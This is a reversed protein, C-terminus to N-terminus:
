LFLPIKLNTVRSKDGENSQAIEKLSTWSKRRRKSSTGVTKEGDEEKATKNSKKRKRKKGELLTPTGISSPTEPGDGILAKDKAVVQSAFVDTEKAKDKNIISKELQSSQHAVPKTPSKSELSSKPKSKRKPPCLGKLHGRPTGRKLNQHLCFHCKYVVKNQAVDRSKNCKRKVKSRNKEIRVTSNFGPHLVTECRQCTVLSPDHPVGMAEGFSALQHGYFAGLSPIPAENTAWLALKKLHNFRLMSKADPAPQTHINGTAEERLTIPVRINRLGGNSKGMSYNRQAGATCM